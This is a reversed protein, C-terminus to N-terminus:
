KMDADLGQHHGRPQQVQGIGGSAGAVVAKVMTFHKPFLPPPNHPSALPLLSLLHLQPTPSLLSCCIHRSSTPRSSCWAGTRNTSPLHPTSCPGTAAPYRASRLRPRLRAEALLCLLRALAREAVRSRSPKTRPSASRPSRPLPLPLLLLLLLLAHFIPGGHLLLFGRCRRGRVAHSKARPSGHKPIARGHPPFHLYLSTSPRMAEM